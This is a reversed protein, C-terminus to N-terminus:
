AFVLYFDYALLVFWASYSSLFFPGFRYLCVILCFRAALACISLLFLLWAVREEALLSMHM